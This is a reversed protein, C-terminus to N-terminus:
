NTASIISEGHEPIWALRASNAALWAALESSVIRDGAALVTGDATTLLPLREREWPPIGSDQLVHKLSHSHTRGPLIIREGGQRAHAVLPTDFRESGQLGLLGGGPVQLPANGDWEVRWDRPLPTPVVGAHLVHRWRRLEAGSWRFTAAADPAAHLIDTEVRAVGNAPLPPLGLAHIWRRLVRARRAQPLAQLARADLTHDDGNRATALARADESDLLDSAQASLAASRALAATAHPWRGRLTPLVQRRLFNRDLTDDANSPDEIWHLDETRAWALLKSRPTDLLPRWLWGHGQARWHRMAALGDPGSARLARLLFTEAQDDAHHALALVEGGRLAAAFAAHRVGRAAAEPGLGTDRPVEVRVSDLPVSLAACTEACHAQWVDADPLLGHHVHIARLGAHLGTANALLQLLVRSDLGGSFGLLVPRPTGPQPILPPAGSM